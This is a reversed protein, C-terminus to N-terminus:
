GFMGGTIMKGGLGLMGGLLSNRNTVQQNYNNMKQGYNANVLGAYDTTPMPGPSSVGFQPVNLQGGSLLASIENIPQNRYAFNESIENRRRNESENALAMQQAFYSDSLANNGAAAQNRNDLESQRASNGLQINAMDQGFRQQQAQNGFQAGSLNMGFQNQGIQSQQGINSFDQGFEQQQAANEFGARAHDLGALRSQEQGGALIAGMRADSVGRNFDDTAAGYAESGEGIGQNALRTRMQERDRNIRPQMRDMLANEVRGRQKAYDRGYTRTIDGGTAARNTLRPTGVNGQVNGGRAPGAFLGADGGFLSKQSPGHPMQYNPNETPRAVDQKIYSKLANAREAGMHALDETAIQGWGIAKKVPETVETTAKFRPINSVNGTNPDTMQYSGVQDYKLNGYPTRQDVMGLKANAIATQVNTATQAGATVKPDPPAPAKPKGM